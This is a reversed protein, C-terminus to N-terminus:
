VVFPLSVTQLGIRILLCVSLPFFLRSKGPRDVPAAQMEVLGGAVILAEIIKIHHEPNVDASSLSHKFFAESFAQGLQRPSAQSQTGAQAVRCLHRTLHLLLQHNPQPISPSELIRKLQQGCEEISQTEQATYVLESYIVAPIIPSPLDQLYGRLTDALVAVEYQDLDVSSPDTDLAQRLEPPGSLGSSMRYLSDSELGQREMAETLRQVVLPAMDPLGLVDPLDVQGSSGTLPSYVWKQSGVVSVLM